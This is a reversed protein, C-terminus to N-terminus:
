TADLSENMAELCDAPSGMLAGIHRIRKLYLQADHEWTFGLAGHVQIAAHAAELSTELCLFRAAAGDREWSPATADFAAAGHRLALQANDLGMWVDALRHKIAQYSGIPKDFQRRERAHSCALELASWASGLMEACRTLWYAHLCRRLGTTDIRFGERAPTQGAPEAVTSTPDLGHARESAPMRIGLAYGNPGDSLLVLALSCQDAYELPTSPDMAVSPAHEGRAIDRVVDSLWPPVQTGHRHLLPLLVASSAYPLNFLRQGAAQAILCAEQLGLDIGGLEEPVLVSLWGLRAIEQWVSRQRPDSWALALRARAPPHRNEFFRCAANHLMDQEDSLWVHM